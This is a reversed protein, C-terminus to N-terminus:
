NPGHKMFSAPPVMRSHVIYNSQILLCKRDLEVLRKVSIYAPNKFSRAFAQNLFLYGFGRLMQAMEYAIPLCDKSIHFWWNNLRSYFWGNKHMFDNFDENSINM